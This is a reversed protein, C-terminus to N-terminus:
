ELKSLKFVKPAVGDLRVELLYLGQPLDGLEMQTNQSTQIKQRKILRGDLGILRIEAEQQWAGFDITIQNKTPNPYIRINHEKPLDEIAVTTINYCDSIMSCQGHTIEVAYNGNVTPSFSQATAGSIPSLGNDCDLWQYNAATQAVQLNIGDWNLTADIDSSAEITLNLNLISDCGAQNMLIQQYNGSNFYAQGNLVFSDCQITSISATSSYDIHLNLTITSDCGQQNTLSQAYTGTQSYLQGNFEFSNCSTEAIITDYSNLIELDITLTSDCGFQNTLTQTYIGSQFYRQGNLIFSDCATETISNITSPYINLDLNLISDCGNFNNLIQQYFGSNYYVQGNLELSDCSITRLISSTASHITLDMNLISDCGFQNTLVQNHIGSQFYRQGNLIFSDCATETISNITSPYIILDLNLISDCGSFNNLIQQYSGSNYYVQGNYEFSDCSIQTIFTDLSNNINLDITLTSDCGFQNSLVQTYIGSQFYSQGNLIFSDCVTERISGITSPLITVVVNLVSDCGSFNNFHQQYIGTNTYVVGNHEFSDCSTHIIKNFSSYGIDLDITIISDCGYQNSLTQTYIGTQSYLQGNLTFGDCASETISSFTSPYISLDLNIISDCGALNTSHFSHLASSYFTQNDFNFSDCANVTISSDFRLIKLNLIYLSDLGNTSQGVLYQGTQHYTNGKFTMSDCAELHTTDRGNWYQFPLEHINHHYTNTIIPPNFDFYIGARNKITSGFPLNPKPSVKFKVFGNSAPENTTSDPLLIDEFRWELIGPGYMRFSYPHSSIVPEVSLPNLHESLTDRIIVSFATDTGTNQFRILYELEQNQQIYHASDLGNPYGKKDNPDYSGRVVGCFIDRIPDADDQALINILDSTWNTPDGCLEISVSPQSNGPHLPHQDVELRWTRGDGVFLFTTDTGSLLQISDMRILQGDIFLRVESFCSMDGSGTNYITFLISDNQCEAKLSIHSNDYTTNCSIGTQNPIDDLVCSEVPYLDAQLCLTQGLIANTSLTCELWFNICQGPFLSDTLYIQYRNNGLSTYTLSGSNVTLLPDLEVIVYVSDMVATGLTNNCAEVYIKQNSFSPRLAPAHISINPLPCPSSSYVGIDVAHALTDPNTVSFSQTVPCSPIWNNQTSDFTITYTGIPLSGIMWGGSSNTQTIINGPQICLNFSPIQTNDSADKVCNQNYDQYVQGYHGKLRYVQAHGAYLAQNSNWITGAAITFPDPMSVSLGFQNSLDGGEIDLGKQIWQSGDWSFIRVRGVNLPTGTVNRDSLPASFAITNSNAMSVAYGAKEFYIGYLNQGKQIWQTGDWHFIQVLGDHAGTHSHDPSGIAVTNSDPMSVSYGADDGVTVADLSQGKQMWQTGDWKFIRCQGAIFNTGNYRHYPAGIAITNSDPMSLSWGSRDGIAEGDIDQGKQIWQSGDWSYIRTHGSSTGNGDNYIAGIAITNQDPMSVSFGSQDDAAEGIIDQGKQIWQTGDWRYVKVQGIDRNSNDYKPAGVAITNKDPMSLTHGFENGATASGYLSQGKQVWQGAVLTYVKAQGANQGTLDHNPVGVAITQADPMSISKSLYDEAAEGYIDQGIQIQAFSLLSLLSFFCCLFLSKIKMSLSLLTSIIHKSDLRM